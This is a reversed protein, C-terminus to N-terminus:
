SAIVSNMWSFVDQSRNNDSVARVTILIVTDDWTCVDYVHHRLFTLDISRLELVKESEAQLAM